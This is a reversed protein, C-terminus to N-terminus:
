ILSCLCLGLNFKLLPFKKVMNILEWATELGQIGGGIILPKKKELVIDKVVWADELHRITYVNQKDIGEIPPTFNHAGSALLLKSFKLRSDDNLIVEHEEVDIRTVEKNIYLKVSNAEYWERKQLLIAEESLNGFLSKTLRLRNYPYFKENSIMHIEIESDVERIAKIASIGAIGGGIIIIRNNM